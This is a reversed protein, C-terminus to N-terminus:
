ENCARVSPSLKRSPVVLASCIMHDFRGPNHHLASRYTRQASSRSPFWSPELSLLRTLRPMSSIVIRGPLVATAEQQGM